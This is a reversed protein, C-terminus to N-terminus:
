ETRSHAANNLREASSTIAAFDWASWLRPDGDAVGLVSGLRALANAVNKAGVCNAYPSSTPRGRLGASIAYTSRICRRCAPMSFRERRARKARRKKTSRTSKGSYGKSPRNM